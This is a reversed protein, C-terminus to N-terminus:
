HFRIINAINGLVELLNTGIRGIGIHYYVLSNWSSIKIYKM